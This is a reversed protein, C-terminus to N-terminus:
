IACDLVTSHSKPAGIQEKIVFDNEELFLVDQENAHRAVLAIKYKKSNVATRRQYCSIVTAEEQEQQEAGVM